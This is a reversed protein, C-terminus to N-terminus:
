AAKSKWLLQPREEARERAVRLVDAVFVVEEDAIQLYRHIEADDTRCSVLYLANRIAALPSNIEHSLEAVLNEIPSNVKPGRTNTWGPDAGERV